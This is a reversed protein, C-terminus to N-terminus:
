RWIATVITICVLLIPVFVLLFDEVDSTRKHSRRLASPEMRPRRPLVERYDTSSDLYEIARRVVADPIVNEATAKM